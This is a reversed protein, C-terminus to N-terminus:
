QVFKRRMAELLINQWEDYRVQWLDGLNAGGVKMDIPKGSDDTFIDRCLAGCHDISTVKGLEALFRETIVIGYHYRDSENKIM